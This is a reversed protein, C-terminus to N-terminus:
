ARVCIRSLSQLHFSQATEENEPGCDQHGSAKPTRTANKGTMPKESCSSGARLEKRGTLEKKGTREKWGTLQNGGTLQKRAAM